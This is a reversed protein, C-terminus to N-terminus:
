ASGAAGLPKNAVTPPQEVTAPPVVGYEQLWSTNPSSAADPKKFDGGQVAIPMSFALAAATLFFTFFQRIPKM